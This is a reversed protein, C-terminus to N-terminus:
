VKQEQSTQVFAPHLKCNATRPFAALIYYDVEILGKLGADDRAGSYLYNGEKEVLGARVPNKHVYGMRSETMEPRCLEIAHNEDTWFQLDGSRKNIGTTARKYRTVAL